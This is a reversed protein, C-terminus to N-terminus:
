IGCNSVWRSARQPKGDCDWYLDSMAGQKIYYFGGKEDSKDDAIPYKWWFVSSSAWEVGRVEVNLGLRGLEGFVNSPVEVVVGGEKTGRLPLGRVADALPKLFVRELEDLADAPRQRPNNYLGDQFCLVLSELSPFSGGLHRLQAILHAREEETPLWGFLVVEWRIVLSKVSALREPLLLHQRPTTDTDLRPRPRFLADMLDRSEIFFTNTAYLVDIGEAYAQRCSLLWGMAGVGSECRKKAKGLSAPPSILEPSPSSASWLQCFPPDGRSCTDDSPFHYPWRKKLAEGTLAVARREWKSGPPFQSHCECSWWRWAKPTTRDPNYNWGKPALGGGHEDIGDGRDPLRPHMLRLDIHLTREGFAALLVERRLEPPLLAFTGLSVVSQRPPTPTLISPREATLFPLSPRDDDEHPEDDVPNRGRITHLLRRFRGTSSSPNSNNTSM